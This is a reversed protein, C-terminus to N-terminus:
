NSYLLYKIFREANNKVFLYIGCPCASGIGAYMGQEETGMKVAEGRIKTFIIIKYEPKVPKQWFVNRDTSYLFYEGICIRPEASNGSGILIINGPGLIREEVTGAPKQVPININLSHVLSAVDQETMGIEGAEAFKM